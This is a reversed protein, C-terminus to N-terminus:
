AKIFTQGTIATLRSAATLGIALVVEFDITITACYM